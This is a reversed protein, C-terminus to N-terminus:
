AHEDNDDDGPPDGYLHGFLSLLFIAAAVILVVALGYGQLAGAATAALALAAGMASFAMGKRSHQRLSM